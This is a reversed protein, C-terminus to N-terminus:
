SKCWTDWEPVRLISDYDRSITAFGVGDICIRVINPHQDLNVYLEAKDPKQPNVGELDRAQGRTCGTVGVIVVVAALMGFRKM